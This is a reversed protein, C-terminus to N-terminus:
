TPSIERARRRFYVFLMVPFLVALSGWTAMYYIHKDPYINRESFVRFQEPYDFNEIYDAQIYVSPYQHLSFADGDLRMVYVKDDDREFVPGEFWGKKKTFKRVVGRVLVNENKHVQLLSEERLLSKALWGRDVWIKSGNWDFLTFVRGGIYSRYPQNVLVMQNLGLFGGEILVRQGVVLGAVDLVEEYGGDDYANLLAESEGYRNWQWIFLRLFLLEVVFFLLVASLIVFCKVRM